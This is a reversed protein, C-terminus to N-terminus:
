KENVKLFGWWSCVTLSTKRQSGRAATGIIGKGWKFAVFGTKVFAGTRRGLDANAEASPHSPHEETWSLFQGGGGM